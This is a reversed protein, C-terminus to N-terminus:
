IILGILFCVTAFFLLLWVLMSGWVHFGAILAFSEGELYVVEVEKGIMSSYLVSGFRASKTIKEGKHNFFELIPRNRSLNCKNDLGIIHGKIKIGNKLTRHILCYEVISIVLLVFGLIIGVSLFTM